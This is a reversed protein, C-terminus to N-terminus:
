FGAGGFARPAPDLIVVRRDRITAVALGRQNTGDPLLRFVGSTGQFGASQTLAGGTLASRGRAKVLAGVAAIGDFALGGLQHPAAGYAANYRSRFSQDAATDPLTFWGNQLGPLDLASAPVDWRGLGMFQQDPSRVGRGPLGEALYSLGGAPNSTFFIADAGQSQVASAASAVAGTVGAVSPEFGIAGVVDFASGAAATEIAQRGVQGEADQSFVVLGRRKGQAAAFSVLRTASSDFTPGLVFLNGGAISTNNSFALVNVGDDAVAKSAEVAADAFLPGLIIKAGDDVAQQALVGARAADGATDYVRLDIRVGDLDAVALRAANELSRGVVGASASSKPVLLAVPVPAAPDISPGGSAGGGVTPIAIGDCAALLTLSLAAIGKFVHRRTSRLISPM